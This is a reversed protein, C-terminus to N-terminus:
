CIKSTTLTTGRTVHLCKENWPASVAVIPGGVKEWTTMEVKKDLPDDTVTAM